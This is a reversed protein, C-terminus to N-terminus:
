GSESTLIEHASLLRLDEVQSFHATNKTYLPRSNAVCIGAILIDHTGVLKGRAKLQTFIRGATAAEIANLPLVILEQILTEIQRLRKAGEVGAYLEFVSVVTLAAEERSILESLVDAAPSTNRFFDIIVDTDVAILHNEL